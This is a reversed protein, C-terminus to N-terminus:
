QYRSRTVREDIEGNMQQAPHDHQVHRSAERSYTAEGEIAAQVGRPAAGEPELPGWTTSTSINPGDDLTTSAHEVLPALPSSESDCCDTNDHDEEVFITEGM